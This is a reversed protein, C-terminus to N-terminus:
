PGSRRRPRPQPRASARRAAEDRECAHELLLQTVSMAPIASSACARSPARPLLEFYGDNWDVVFMLIEAPTVGPISSSAGVIQGDALDLTADLLGFLLVLQGSKRARSLMTLLGPVGLGALAGAFLRPPPPPPRRCAALLSALVPGIVRRTPKTEFLPLTPGLPRAAPPCLREVLAGVSADDAAAPDHFRIGVSPLEPNSEDDDGTRYVLTGAIATRPRGARWIVLTVMSGVRAGVRCCVRAGFRSLNQIMAPHGQGDVNLEALLDTSVRLDRRRDIAGAVFRARLAM